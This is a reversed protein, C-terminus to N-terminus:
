SWSKLIMEIASSHPCMAAELGPSLAAKPTSGCPYPIAFRDAPLGMIAM